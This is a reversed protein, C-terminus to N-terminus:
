GLFCQEEQVHRLKRHTLSSHKRKEEVEPCLGGGFWQTESTILDLFTLALFAWLLWAVGGRRSVDWFSPWGAM